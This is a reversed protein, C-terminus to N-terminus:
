KTENPINMLWQMTRSSGILSPVVKMNMKSRCCELRRKRRVMMSPIEMGDPICTQNIDGQRSVVIM